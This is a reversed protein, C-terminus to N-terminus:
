MYSRFIQEGKKISRIVKCILRNDVSMTWVNPLCSHNIYCGFPYMGVGYMSFFGKALPRTKEIQVYEHLNINMVVTGLFHLILHQLFRRHKISTFKSKFDPSKTILVFSYAAMSPLEDLTDSSLKEHHNVMQFLLCFNKQAANPLDPTEGGKLLTEVANMLSDVDTFANIANCITKLILEIGQQACGLASISCIINHFPNKMCDENCYVDNTCNECAIFNMADKLCGSCRDGNKISHAFAAISFPEEILITQGIKLDRTTIIHRGFKDNSQIELCDAVGAYKEHEGFSLVPERINHQNANFQASEMRDKCKSVRADLKHMLHAPYHSKKAMEIDTLCEQLMNLQFFCASRNAYALGLEESGNEAFSLGKNFSKMAEVYDGSSFHRKGYERCATAESNSKKVVNLKQAQDINQEIDALSIEQNEIAFIDIFLDSQSSKKWLITGSM